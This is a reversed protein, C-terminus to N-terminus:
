EKKEDIQNIEKILGFSVCVKILLEKAKEIYKKTFSYLYASCCGICGGVINGTILQYIFHENLYWRSFDVLFLGICCFICLLSFCKKTIQPHKYIWYLFLVVFCSWFQAHSSPFGQNTNMALSPRPHNFGKKLIMNIIENILMTIFSHIAFSDFTFLSLAFVAGIAFLHAISIYGMIHGIKDGEEFLVYALGVPRMNRQM